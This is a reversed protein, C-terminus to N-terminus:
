RCAAKKLEMFSPGRQEDRRWTDELRARDIEPAPGLVFEIRPGSAWFTPLKAQGPIAPIQAECPDRTLADKVNALLENLSAETPPEKLTVLVDHHGKTFNSAGGYHPIFGSGTVRYVVQLNQSAPRAAPAVGCEPRQLKRSLALLLDNRSSVGKLSACPLDSLLAHAKWLTDTAKPKDCAAVEKGLVGIVDDLDALAGSFNDIDAIIQREREGSLCSMMNAATGFSERVATQYREHLQRFGHSSCARGSRLTYQAWSLFDSWKRYPYDVEFQIGSVVSNAVPISCGQGLLSAKLDRIRHNMEEAPSDSLPSILANPALLIGCKRINARALAELEKARKLFPALERARAQFKEKFAAEKKLFDSYALHAREYDRQFRAWKQFHTVHSKRQGAMDHGELLYTKDRISMTDFSQSGATIQCYTLHRYHEMSIRADAVATTLSARRTAWIVQADGLNCQRLLEDTGGLPRDPDWYTQLQEITETPNMVANAVAATLGTKIKDTSVSRAYAAPDAAVKDAEMLWDGISLSTNDGDNGSFDIVLFEPIVDPGGTALKGALKALKQYEDYTAKVGDIVGMATRQEQPSLNTSQVVSKAMCAISGQLAGTIRDVPESFDLQETLNEFCDAAGTMVGPGIKGDTAVKCKKLTEAVSPSICQEVLASPFKWFADLMTPCVGGVDPRPGLDPRLNDPAEAAQTMAANLQDVTLYTYPIGFPSTAKAPVASLLIIVACAVLRDFPLRITKM